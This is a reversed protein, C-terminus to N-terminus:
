QFPEIASPHNHSEVKFACVMGGGVDVAGANEGPGMVVYRGETPLTRLLKRSHKYACHESWLLSYMALEVENPPGGQKECVLEYEAETLGLALADEVTPPTTGKRTSPHRDTPIYTERQSPHIAM